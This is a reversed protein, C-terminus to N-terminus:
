PSGPLPAASSNPTPWTIHYVYIERLSLNMAFSNKGLRSAPVEGHIHLTLYTAYRTEIRKSKRATIIRKKRRMWLEM